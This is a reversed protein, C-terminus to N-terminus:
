PAVTVQPTRIARGNFSNVAAQPKAREKPVYSKSRDYGSGSTSLDGSELGTSRDKVGLVCRRYFNTCICVLSIIGLVTLSIRRSSDDDKKVDCLRGEWGDRCRCGAERISAMSFMEDSGDARCSGHEGCIDRFRSPCQLCETSNIVDTYEGVRCEYCRTAHPPAWHGKPCLRCDLPDQVDPEAASGEVCVSGQTYLVVDASPRAEWSTESSSHRCIWCQTSFDCSRCHAFASCDEYDEQCRERCEEPEDYWGWEKEVWSGECVTDRQSLWYQGAIWQGSVGEGTQMPEPDEGEVGEENALTVSSTALVLGLLLFRQGRGRWGVDAGRGLGRGEGFARMSWAEWQVM